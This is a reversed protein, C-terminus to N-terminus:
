VSICFVCAKAAQTEQRVGLSIRPEAVLVGSTFAVPFVGDGSTEVHNIVQEDPRFVAQIPPARKNLLIIVALRCRTARSM